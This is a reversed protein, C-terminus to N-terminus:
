FSSSHLFVMLNLFPAKHFTAVVDVNCVDFDPNGSRCDKELQQTLLLYHLGSWLWTPEAWVRAHHLPIRRRVCRLARAGQGHIALMSLGLYGEKRGFECDTKMIIM